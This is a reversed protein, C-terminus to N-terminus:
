LFNKKKPPTLVGNDIESPQEPDLLDAPGDGDVFDEDLPRPKKKPKVPEEDVPLDYPISIGDGPKAVYGTSKNKKSKIYQVVVLVGVALIVGLGIM